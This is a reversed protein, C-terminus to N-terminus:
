CLIFQLSLTEPKELNASLLPPKSYCNKYKGSFSYLIIAGINVDDIRRLMGM